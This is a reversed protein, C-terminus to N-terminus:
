LSMILVQPMELSLVDDRFECSVCCFDMVPKVAHVFLESMFM